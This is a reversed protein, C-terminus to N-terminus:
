YSNAPNYRELKEALRRRTYFLRSKVTGESIELMQAIERLSFSERYHLLFVSRHTEDFTELEGFLDRVFQEVDPPDCGFEQPEDILVPTYTEISTDKRVSM